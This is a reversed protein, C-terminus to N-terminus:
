TALEFKGGALLADLTTHMTNALVELQGRTRRARKPVPPPPAPVDAADAGSGDQGAWPVPGTGAAPVASCVQHEMAEAPPQVDPYPIDVIEIEEGTGGAPAAKVLNDGCQLNKNPNFPYVRSHGVQPVPDGESKPCPRNSKPDPSNKCEGEGHKKIWDDHTLVRINHTSWQGNSKRAAPAVVEFWGADILAHMLRYMTSKSGRRFRKAMNRWDFFLLNKKYSLERGLTWLGYEAVTMHDHAFCTTKTEAM